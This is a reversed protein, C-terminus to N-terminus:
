PCPQYAGRLGWLRMMRGWWTSDCITRVNMRQVSEQSMPVSGEDPQEKYGWTAVRIGPKVARTRRAIGDTFYLTDRNSVVIFLPNSLKSLVSDRSQSAHRLVYWREVSESVVLYGTRLTGPVTPALERTAASDSWVRIPAKYGFQDQLVWVHRAVPVLSDTPPISLIPTGPETFTLPLIFALLRIM